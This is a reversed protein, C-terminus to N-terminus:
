RSFCSSRKGFGSASCIFSGSGHRTSVNRALRRKQAIEGAQLPNRTPNLWANVSNSPVHAARDIHGTQAPSAACGALPVLVVGAALFAASIRSHITKM